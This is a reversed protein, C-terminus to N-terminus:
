VFIVDDLLHELAVRLADVQGPAVTLGAGSEDLLVRCTGSQAAVVPTGCALAEYFRAPITGRYLAEDRLAWMTVASANWALPMQEHPLWDMVRVNDLEHSRAQVYAQQSGTGILLFLVNDRGQLQEAVRLMAPFDYQTAFTGIVSVITKDGLHHM